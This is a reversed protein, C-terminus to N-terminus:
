CAEGMLHIPAAMFSMLAFWTDVVIALILCSSSDVRSEM